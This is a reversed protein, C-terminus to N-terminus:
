AAKNKRNKVREDWCSVCIAEVDNDHKRLSASRLYFSSLPKLMKCSKCPIKVIEYLGTIISMVRLDSATRRWLVAEAELRVATM